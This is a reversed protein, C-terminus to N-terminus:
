VATVNVPVRSVHLYTVQAASGAGGGLPHVGTLATDFHIMSQTDMTSVYGVIGGFVDSQGDVTVDSTSSPTGPVYVVGTVNSDGTVDVDTGAPGYLWFRDARMRPTTVKTKSTLALSQSDMYIEVKGPGVVEFETNTNKGEVDIQGDVALTVDGSTTNFVLEEKSIDIKSLYYQGDAGGGGYFECPCAATDIRNSGTVPARPDSNNNNSQITAVEDDITTDAPTATPETGNTFTDGTITGDTTGRCDNGDTCFLDGDVKTQPGTLGITGGVTVDGTIEAQNALEVNGAVKITGASGQSTGYVGVSSNYSDVAAKNDMDLSGGSATSKLGQQIGDATTPVTLEITATDNEHDYSVAGGTRQEFFRGWALYYDSHVTVNVRGGSLPNSLSASPYKGVIPDSRTVRATRGLTGTGSVTVLPLTLTPNQGNTARYHFEPPSVMTVGGDQYHRWVGGGQYAITTNGEEYVVAGLTANMVETELSGGDVISVNLWGARPRVSTASRSGAVLSVTQADSSGHAVLSVMSDFQTMAQAASDTRMERQSDDLADAGFVVIATTGIAAIALLLVVGITATQATRDARFAGAHDFRWVM